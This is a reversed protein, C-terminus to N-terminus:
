SQGGLVIAAVALTLLLMTLYSGLYLGWVNPTSPNRHPKSM